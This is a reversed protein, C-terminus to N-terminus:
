TLVTLSPRGSGWGVRAVQVNLCEALAKIEPELLPDFREGLVVARLCSGFSVDIPEHQRRSPDFLVFRYEYETEWDLLKLFWFDHHHEVVHRTLVAAATDETLDNANLVRADSVIFGGETYEVPGCTPAGYARLEDFFAETLCRASFALCVGGHSEAYQEWMRPRAYGYGFARVREDEYGSADMTLSLIRMQDRVDSIREQARRLPLRETEAANSYRLMLPLEKNELPDRMSRYPNLRLAKDPLIFRLATEARTYHYLLQDRASDFDALALDPYDRSGFDGSETPASHQM